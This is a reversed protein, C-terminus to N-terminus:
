LTACCCCRSPQPVDSCPQAAKTVSPAAETVAAAGVKVLNAESQEYISGQEVGGLAVYPLWVNWGSCQLVDLIRRFINKICGKSCAICM